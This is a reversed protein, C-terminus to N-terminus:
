IGRKWNTFLTANELLYDVEIQVVDGEQTFELPVPNCGGRASGIEDIAFHNGCNQCVVDDGEQEFYAYPSGNCVQCINFAGHIVSDSDKYLMVQVTVGDADYDAYILENEASETDVLLQKEETVEEEKKDCGSAWMIVIFLGILIRLRRKNM